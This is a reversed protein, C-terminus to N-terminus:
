RTEGSRQYRRVEPIDPSGVFELCWKNRTTTNFSMGFHSHGHHLIKLANINSMQTACKGAALAFEDMISKDYTSPFEFHYEEGPIGNEPRDDNVWSSVRGVRDYDRIDIWHGSPLVDHLEVHFVRLTPWQADVDKGKPWFITSDVSATLRFDNLGNRQTFRFLSQSLVDGEAGPPIISPIMDLTEAFRTRQQIRLDTNIKEGDFLSWGIKHLRTMKSTMRNIASPAFLLSQSGMDVIFSSVSPLDALEKDWSAALHVYTSRIEGNFVGDAENVRAAASGWAPLSYKRPTPISIELRVHPESRSPIQSLVGYLQIITRNLVLQDDFDDKNTTVALDHAPFEFRFSIYRVYSLRLPTFYGGLQAVSLRHPSLMLDHFTIQEVVNQWKRSVTAYFALPTKPFTEEIESLAIDQILNCIIPGLIEPPLGDM